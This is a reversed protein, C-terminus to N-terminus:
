LKNIPFVGPQVGMGQPTGGPAVAGGLRTPGSVDDPKINGGAFGGGGSPQRFQEEMKKLRALFQEVTEQDPQFNPNSTIIAM